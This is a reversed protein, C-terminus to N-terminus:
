RSIEKADSNTDDPDQSKHRGTKGEGPCTPSTPPGPTLCRDDPKRLRGKQKEAM